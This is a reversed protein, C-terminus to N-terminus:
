AKPFKQTRIDISCSSGSTIDCIVGSPSEYSLHSSERNYFFTKNGDVCTSDKKAMRILALMARAKDSCAVAIDQAMAVGKFFAM